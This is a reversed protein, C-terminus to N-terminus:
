AAKRRPYGKAPVAREEITWGTNPVINRIVAFTILLAPIAVFGGLAGWLWIWFALALIVIFPNLTMTHGIVLPTVFQSELLNIAQYILPPLLSGALTDFESLGVAFLVITMVLPGVFVVFNSLAALAGWLMPSPVGIAWLGLGVAIGEAINIVTISLLYRSVLREVDRFIHAVRWRLRRDFCLKLVALRTQHRTAVFFYLTAFFLVIQGILAPALAAMSEVASGDEVAVSLDSGGTIGRIEERATRIAELPERWQSLQGQLETWIQPLRGVWVSLPTAIAVAFATIACIFLMAVLAASLGPRVGWREVRTAVPGLMLGIVIGTGVPALIFEGAELAFVIAVFGVVIMAVQAGRLLILEVNSKPPLRVVPARALARNSM